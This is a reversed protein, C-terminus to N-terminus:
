ISMNSQDCLRFSFNNTIEAKNKDKGIGRVTQLYDIIVEFLAKFDVSNCENCTQEYISIIEEKGENIEILKPNFLLYIFDIKKDFEGKLYATAVGLLHSIMQKMDFSHLETEGLTFKVEMKREDIVKTDCDVDTKDSATIAKYLDEYKREINSDKATYPERCKAEVFIYKEETEM